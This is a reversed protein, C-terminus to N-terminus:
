GLGALAALDSAVLALELQLVALDLGELLLGLAEGALVVLEALAVAGGLGGGTRALVFLRVGQRVLGRPGAALTHDRRRSAHIESPRQPEQAVARTNQSRDDLNASALVTSGVTKSPFVLSYAIIRQPTSRLVIETIPPLLSSHRKCPQLPNQCPSVHLIQNNQRLRVLESSM